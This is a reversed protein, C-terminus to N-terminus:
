PSQKQQLQQNTLSNKQNTNMEFKEDCVPFFENISDSTLTFSGKRVVPNSLRITEKVYDNNELGCGIAAENGYSKYILNTLSKVDKPKNIPSIQKKHYNNQYFYDKKDKYFFQDVNDIEDSTDSKSTIKCNNVNLASNLIDINKTNDYDITKLFSANLVEEYNKKLLNTDLVMLDEFDKM